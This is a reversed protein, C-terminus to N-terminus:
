SNSLGRTNTHQRSCKEKEFLRTVLAMGPHYFVSKVSTESTHSFRAVMGLECWVGDTAPERSENLEELDKSMNSALASAASPEKRTAMPHLNSSDRNISLCSFHSSFAPMNTLCRRTSQTPVFEVINNHAPTWPEGRPSVRSNKRFVQDQPWSSRIVGRSPPLSLM